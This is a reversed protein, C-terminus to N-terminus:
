SNGISEVCAKFYFQFKQAADDLSGLAYYEDKSKGVCGILPSALLELMSKIEDIDPSIEFREDKRLMIYLERASVFGKTHPDSSQESLCELVAQMLYGERMIKERDKEIMRLDVLGKQSFIKKYSEVNLPVESHWRIITDLSNVDILLINHEIARKILRSNKGFNIAVVVAYDADHKKKHENLTILDISSESVENYHTSKADVTVSYTFKPATPAHLLVDTKGSGGVHEAKFGLLSLGVRLAEEFRNPNTSDKAADKIEYLIKNLYSFEENEEILLENKKDYSTNISFYSEIVKSFQKGRNTLGYSSYGREHILKANKLIHIRKHIESSDKFNFGYSVRAIELLEKPNLQRDVLEILIEFVFKYKLHICCAFNIEINELTIKKGLDTIELESKSVPKVFGLNKLPTMFSGVSSEKIGYKEKSYKIIDQKKIPTSMLNLYEILTVHMVNVSGPFYGIGDKRERKDESLKDEEFLELVWDSVEVEVENLTQDIEQEEQIIKSDIYGAIDLFERGLETILYNFTFDEYYILELDKLWNLRASVEQKTKWPIKYANVAVDLIENIRLEKKSLIYLIESFFKVKKNLIDALLLPDDKELWPTVENSVLWKTKPGGSVFNLPRLRICMENLSEKRNSGEIRFPSEFKQGDKIAHLIKKLSEPYGKGRPINPMASVKLEWEAFKIDNLDM